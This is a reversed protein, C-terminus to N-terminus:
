NLQVFVTIQYSNLVLGHSTVQLVPSFNYCNPKIFKQMSWGDRTGESTQEASDGAEEAASSINSFQIARKESSIPTDLLFTM